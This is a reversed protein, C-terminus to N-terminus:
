FELFIDKANHFDELYIRMYGITRDTHLRFYCPLTFDMFNRVCKLAIRCNRTQSPEPNTLAVALCPLLIKGANRNEFGPWKKLASYIKPPIRIGPYEPCALWASNFLDIRGRKKQLGIIWGMLHPFVGIWICHLTDPAFLEHCTVDELESVALPFTKLGTERTIDYVTWFVEKTPACSEVEM